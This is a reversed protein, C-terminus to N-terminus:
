DDGRRNSANPDYETAPFRFQQDVSPNSDRGLVRGAVYEGMVPGMKFGEANGGGAIWINAMEPHRAVIFNRSSTSEYHCARTELVPADQLAPFRQAVFQRSRAVREADVWRVSLDPDTVPASSVATQPAPQGAPQSAPQGAPQQAQPAGGGGGGGRVRFGRSDVPLTPWGTVGPFNWSPMNPATFRDDGPPPGFYVVTGLPTRMRNRMNAFTKGLWPGVAFVFTDAALSTGDQLRVTHGDFKGPEPPVVRGIVIRGGEHRFVEAVAECARRARVVGANPEYQAVTIGDVNIAPWRKRVEDASLEEFPIGNKTWWVKNQNTFNEPEARMILDGTTFFLRMRLPKAYEEDWEKWRTIARHAWQMWLEGHTRDGYSTRVGRTEDGSTSRSNGPGFMDVLTVRAGMRQLNLATWGGFAGAGVVVVNASGRARLFGPATACGTLLAGAGAGAVKLFERRDLENHSM